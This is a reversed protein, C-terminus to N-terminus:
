VYQEGNKSLMSAKQQGEDAHYRAWRLGLFISYIVILHYPRKTSWVTSRFLHTWLIAELARASARTFGVWHESFSVVYPVIAPYPEDPHTAGDGPTHQEQANAARVIVVRAFAMVFSASYISFPIM